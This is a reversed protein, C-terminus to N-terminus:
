MIYLLTYTIYIYFQLGTSLNMPWPFSLTVETHIFCTARVDEESAMESGLPFMLTKKTNKKLIFFILGSYFNDCCISCNGQFLSIGCMNM